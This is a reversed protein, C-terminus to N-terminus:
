RAAACRERWIGRLTGGFMAAFRPADCLPSAVMRERISSRYNRIRATDAALAAALDIAGEASDAILEPLGAASLLSASVRSAHRDGRFAVVPVGMWLAECTTTTGNYPFPDLGIDIRRYAALHGGTDDIPGLLDLRDAPLGQAALMANYCDHERGHIGEQACFDRIARRLAADDKM